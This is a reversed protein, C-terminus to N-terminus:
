SIATITMSSDRGSATARNGFQEKQPGSEPGFFKRLMEELDQGPDGPNGPNGRPNPLQFRRM